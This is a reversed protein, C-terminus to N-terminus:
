LCRPSSSFVYFFQPRLSLPRLSFCVVQPAVMYPTPQMYPRLDVYLGLEETRLNFDQATIGYERRFHRAGFSASPLYDPSGGVSCFICVTLASPQISVYCFRKCHVLASGM